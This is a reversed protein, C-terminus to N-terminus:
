RGTRENLIEEMVKSNSVIRNVYAVDELEKTSFKNSEVLIMNKSATGNILQTLDVGYLNCLKEVDSVFLRSVDGKEFEEIAQIPKDLFDAIQERSLNDNKRMRRLEICMLHNQIYDNAQENTLCEQPKYHRENHWNVEDGAEVTRGWAIIEARWLDREYGTDGHMKTIRAGYQGGHLIGDSYETNFKLIYMAGDKHKEEYFFFPKLNDKLELDFNM